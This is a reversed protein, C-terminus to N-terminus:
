ARFLGTGLVYLGWVVLTIGAAYGVWRGPPLAKEVLMLLMLGAAWLLNMTGSFFMLAMLAWCCGVCYGGHHIGMRLAGALGPRWATMLFFVPSRCHSLCANKLPTLQFVGAGLLLLGGFVASQSAGAASVLALDHLWWQAFTAVLSFATWVVVYGLLFATTSAVPGSSNSQERSIRALTLLMPAATPVMMAVMMVVWMLFTMALDTATWTVAHAHGMAAADMGTSHDALAVTYAWALASIGILGALVFLRDRSALAELATARDDQV